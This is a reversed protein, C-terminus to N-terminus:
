FLVSHFYHSLNNKVNKYPYKIKLSFYTLFVFLFYKIIIHNLFIHFFYLQFIFLFHGLIDRMKRLKKKEIFGDLNIKKRKNGREKKHFM